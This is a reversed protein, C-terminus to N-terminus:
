KAIPKAENHKNANNRKLEEYINRAIEGMEGNANGAPIYSKILQSGMVSEGIGGRPKDSQSACINWM